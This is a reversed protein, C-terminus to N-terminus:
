RRTKKKDLQLHVVCDYRAPISPAALALTKREEKRRSSHHAHHRHLFAFTYSPRQPNRSIISARMDLIYLSSNFIGNQKTENIPQKSQKVADFDLNNGQLHQCTSTALFRDYMPVSNNAEALHRRNLRRLRSLPDINVARTPSFPLSPQPSSFTLTM